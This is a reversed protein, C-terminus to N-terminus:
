SEWAAIAEAKSAAIEAMVAEGVLDREESTLKWYSVESNGV